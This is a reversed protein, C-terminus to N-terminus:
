GALTIVNLTAEFMKGATRLGEPALKLLKILGELLQVFFLSIEGLININLKQAAEQEAFHTQKIAHYLDSRGLKVIKCLLEPLM